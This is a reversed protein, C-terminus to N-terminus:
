ADTVILLRDSAIHAVRTGATNEVAATFSLGDIAVFVRIPQTCNGWLVDEPAWVSLQSIDATYRRFLSFYNTAAYYLVM